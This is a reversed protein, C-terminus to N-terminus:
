IRGSDLLTDLAQKVSLTVKQLIKEVETVPLKRIEAIQYIEMEGLWFLDFVTRETEPLQVLVKRIERHLIKRDEVALIKDIQELTSLDELIAVPNYQQLESEHDLDEVLTLEGEADITYLEDLDSLEKEELESLAMLHKEEFLEEQLAEELIMEGIQYVWVKLQELQEPKKEFRQFLGEYVSDIVSNADFNSKNLAGTLEAMNLRRVIYPYFDPFKSNLQSKFSTRDPIENRDKDPSNELNQQKKM